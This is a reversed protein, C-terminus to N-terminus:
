AQKGRDGDIASDDSPKDENVERLRVNPERILQQMTQQIDPGLLAVWQDTFLQLRPNLSLCQEEDVLEPQLLGQSILCDLYIRFLSKDFYEPAERGSLISLRQAMTILHKELDKRQVSGEALENVLLYSSMTYREFTERLIRGMGTLVAYETTGVEPRTIESTLRNRRLLGQEVLADLVRRLEAGIAREDFYLFLERKLFPYLLACRDLLDKENFSEQHRFFRALLSPIALVHMICNRYYTLLVAQNGRVTIMEGWDHDISALGATRAAQEFITEADGEPLVMDKSYPVQRLLAVFAEIQELLSQRTMTMTPSALMVTAVLGVPNVVVAENIRQMNEVALARVAEPLWSEDGADLRARWDPQLEAFAEEIILPRGYSVYPSGYSSDFIKTAKMLEGASEKKKAGGRLEKVYSASEVLKDYGVYVPILASRRRPQAIYSKVLMSLMGTKPPLLRGTRSRGGEPFFEISTGRSLLVDLYARFVATYLPQGSFSRRIYFAGGRRLLGGVPPFNLNVGAAIHPPVIGKIYLSYSNLLYDLHSRHAPMYVIHYQNAADRLREFHFLKVGTFIKRFVWTLVIDLFRITRLDFNAAVEDAMKAAKARAKEPNSDESNAEEDIAQVVAPRQLVQKIIQKRDVLTPGLTATRQRQFIFNLSRYLLKVTDTPEERRQRLDKYDLPKGINITIHRRQMLMIMVKRFRGAREADGLILRLLSEENGPDRGWYISVPVFQVRFSDDGTAQEMLELLPGKFEGSRDLERQLASMYLCAASEASPRQGPPATILPLGSQRCLHELLFRDSWAHHRLVYVVPYAALHQLQEAFDEPQVRPKLLPLLPKMLLRSLLFFFRSIASM